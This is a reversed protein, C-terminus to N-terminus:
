LSNLFSEPTIIALLTSNRPQIAKSLLYTICSASGRRLENPAWLRAMILESAHVVGYMM